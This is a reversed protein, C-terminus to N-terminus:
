EPVSSELSNKIHNLMKWKGRIATQIRHCNACRVECLQIEKEIRKWKFARQVMKSIDYNKGYIHDFELVIPNKEGCDICPHQLLFDYLHKVLIDKAKRKRESSKRTLEKQQSKM